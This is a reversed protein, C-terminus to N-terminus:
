RTRWSLLNEVVVFVVLAILVLRTLERYGDSGFDSRPEDQRVTTVTLPAGRYRADPAPPAAQRLDSDGAGANVAFCTVPTLASDGGYAADVRYYGARDTEGYYLTYGDDTADAQVPRRSEASDVVSLERPMEANRYAAVFAEGPRLQRPVTAHSRSLREALRQMLEPFVARLALDTQPWSIGGAFMVVTGYGRRGAVVAPSGDAFSALVRSADGSPRLSYRRSYRVGRLMGSLDRLSRLSEDADFRVDEIPSPANVVEGVTAPLLTAQQGAAQGLTAAGKPDTQEGLFVVLGGGREVYAALQDAQAETLDPVSCLFVCNYGYLGGASMEEFDAEISAIRRRQLDTSLAANLYFRDGGPRAAVGEADAEEAESQEPQEGVCIVSLADAVNVAEVWTNDAALGDEALRFWVHQPGSMEFRIFLSVELSGRAPVTVSRRLEPARRAPDTGAEIPLNEADKKGYNVVTVRFLASRATTAGFRPREVGAIACNGQHEPGLAVIEVRAPDADHPGAGAGQGPPEWAAQQYDTLVVVRRVAARIGGLRERALDVAKWSTGPGGLPEVSAIAQTLKERGTGAACLVRPPISNVVVGVRTSEDLGDLIARAQRKAFGLLTEDGLRRNMSSSADVVLMVAESRDGVGASQCGFRSFALVMLLVIGARLCMLPIHRFRWKFVNQRTVRDLLLVSSYWFRPYKQRHILHIIVPLGLLAAFGLMYPSAFM